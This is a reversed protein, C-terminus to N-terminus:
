RRGLCRRYRDDVRKAFWETTLKRTIKPSKLTIRPIMARPLARDEVKEALEFVSEYLRTKVFRSQDGKELDRRIQSDSLGLQKGLARVARETTGIKSGDPRSGYLILDGDYALPIGSALSVANQFAANRSAYLGANFDAFRYIMKSYNVEYGLLHAIGFYMGGRRTFVERRISENIPYPYGQDKALQEAFSISVQMPGGTRVPNSDAFLRKGLPVSAILDEYILSLERESRIGDLREDYRRGDASKLKLAASVAFKPIHHRAARTDIEKRAIRALNPVVPDATFTSEQETVALAACLNEDSPEIELAAFAAQIDAAWGKRDPTSKPLLTVLRTRVELPRFAPEQLPQRTACGGVAILSAMLAFRTLRTSIM